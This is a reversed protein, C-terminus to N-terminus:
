VSQGPVILRACLCVGAVTGTRPVLRGGQGPIPGSVKAHIPPLYQSVASASYSARNAGLGASPYASVRSDGAARTFVPWLGVVLSCCDSFLGDEERGAEGAGMDCPWISADSGEKRKHM